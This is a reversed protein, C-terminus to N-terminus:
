MYTLNLGHRAVMADVRSCSDTIRRLTGAAGRERERKAKASIENGRLKREQLGGISVIAWGSVSNKCHEWKGDSAKM